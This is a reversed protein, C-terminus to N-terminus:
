RAPVLLSDDERDVEGLAATTLIQGPGWLGRQVDQVGNLRYKRGWLPYVNNLWEDASAKQYLDLVEAASMAHDDIRLRSVRSSVHTLGAVAEAVEIGTGFSPEWAGAGSAVDSNVLVGNVYIARALQGPTGTADGTVTLHYWTGATLTQIANLQGGANNTYFQLVAPAGGPNYALLWRQAGTVGTANLLGYLIATGPDGGWYLFFSVTWEWAPIAQPFTLTEAARAIGATGNTLVLDTPAAKAEIQWGWMWFVAQSGRSFIAIDAANEAAISAGTVSYRTWNETLTITTTGRTNTTGGNGTRLRLDVSGRGRLWISGTYTTSAAITANDTLDVNDSAIITGAAFAGRLTGALYSAPWTADTPDAPPAVATDFALSSPAGTATWALTGSAAASYKCLNTTGGDISIASGLPGSPYRPAGSAAHRILGTSPDVYSGVSARAFAGAPGILPLMSTGRLLRALFVTDAGYDEALTVPQMLREMELAAARGAIARFDDIAIATPHRLATKVLIERGDWTDQRLHMDQRDFSTIQVQTSSVFAPSPSLVSLFQRPLRNAAQCAVTFTQAGTFTGAAFSVSVGPYIPRDLNAVYAHDTGLDLRGTLTGDSWTVTIVANTGIIGGTIVTFTITRNDAFLYDGAFTPVPGTWGGLSPAGLTGRREPASQLDVRFPM